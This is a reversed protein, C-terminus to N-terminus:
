HDHLQKSNINTKKPANLLIQSTIALVPLEILPAVVLSIAILPEYAFASVAIALSIPSNRAMTTLVLSVKEGDTFKLWKSISVGLLYTILFFIFIPILLKLLINYNLILNKGESAFMAMIALSLFLIQSNKFFDLLSRKPKAVKNTWRKALLALLFPVVLVLLISELLFSADFSGTQGFFLLLYAPLLLVQIILNIPLIATSLALNGKALNTFVLYWDTCPTVMLMLFGIWVPLNSSLFILGLIFAFVPTWVFNILLSTLSFRVNKFASKLDSMKISLFLGFLMLMILPVILKSSIDVIATSVNGLVLGIALAILITLSQYKSLKEM